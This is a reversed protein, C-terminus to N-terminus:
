PAFFKNGKENQFAYYPKSTPKKGFCPSNAYEPFDTINSNIYTILESRAEELNSQYRHLLEKKEGSSIALKQFTGDNVSYFIIGDPTLFFNFLPIARTIAEFSVVAQLYPMLNNLVAPSAEPTDMHAKIRAYLPQCILSQILRDAKKLDPLLRLFVRSSSCIPVYDNLTNAKGVILSSRILYFKSSEWEPYDALEDMLTDLIMDLAKDGRKILEAKQNDDRWKAPTTTMDGMGQAAGHENIKLSGENIIHYFAFCSVSIKFLEEFPFLREQNVDSASLAAFLADGLYPKLYDREAAILYPDIAPFYTDSEVKVGLKVDEISKVFLSM